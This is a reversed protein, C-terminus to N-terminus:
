SPVSRPGTVSVQVLVNKGYPTSTNWSGISACRTRPSAPGSRTPGFPSPELEQPRTQSRQDPAAPVRGQDLLQGLAGAATRQVFAQGGLQHEGQVPAAALGVRQGMELPGPQAQGVLQARVRPRLQV